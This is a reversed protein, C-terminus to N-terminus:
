EDDEFVGLYSIAQKTNPDIINDYEPDTIVTERFDFSHSDNNFDHGRNRNKTMTITIADPLEKDRKVFLVIDADQTIAYSGSVEENSAEKKVMGGPTKRTQALLVIPIKHRIANKKIEKSIRALAENQHEVDRTFYHLHDIFVIEAGSEVAKEVLVDIDQWDLEDNEQFIIRMHTIKKRYAHYIRSGLEVKTMELTIFFVTHGEQVMRVALNIALATKGNSTAGAIITMEGGVFGKTLNDINRYGSSLGQMKGFNKHHEMIEDELEGITILGIRDASRKPLDVDEKLKGIVFRDRQEQTLDAFLKDLLKTNSLIDV